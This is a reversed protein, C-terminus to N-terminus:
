GGNPACSCNCRATIFVRLAKVPVEDRLETRSGDSEFATGTLRVTLNRFREESWLRELCIEPKLTVSEAQFHLLASDRSKLMTKLGDGSQLTLAGFMLVDESASLRFNRSVSSGNGANMIGVSVWSPEGGIIAASTASDRDHINTITTFTLGIVSVLATLMTMFLTIINTHHRWDQFGACHPCKITGEAIRKDCVICKVTRLKPAGCTECVETDPMANM